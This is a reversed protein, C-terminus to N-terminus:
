DGRKREKKIWQYFMMILGYTIYLVIVSFGIPAEILWNLARPLDYIIRGHIQELKVLHGGSPANKSQILLREDNIDKVIGVPNTKENLQYYVFDNLQYDAKHYLSVVEGENLVANYKVVGFTLSSKIFFISIGLIFVFSVVMM